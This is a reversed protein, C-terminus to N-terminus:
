FIEKFSGTSVNLCWPSESHIFWLETSIHNTVDPSCYAQMVCSICSLREECTFCQVNTEDDTRHWLGRKDWNTDAMLQPPPAPPPHPPPPATEQFWPKPRDYQLVAPATNAGQSNNGERLCPPVYSTVKLAWAASASGASLGPRPTMMVRRSMWPGNPKM